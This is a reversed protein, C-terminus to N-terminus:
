FMWWEKDKGKPALKDQTLSDLLTHNFLLSSKLWVWCDKTLLSPWSCPMHSLVWPKKKVWNVKLGMPCCPCSSYGRVERTSRPKGSEGSLALCGGREDLYVYRAPHTRAASTLTGANPPSSHACERRRPRRWFRMRILMLATCSIWAPLLHQCFLDKTDIVEDPFDDNLIINQKFINFLIFLGNETLKSSSSSGDSHLSSSCERNVFRHTNRGDPFTWSISNIARWNQKCKWNNWKNHVRNRERSM